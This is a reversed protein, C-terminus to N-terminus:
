RRQALLRNRLAPGIQFEDIAKKIATEEDPAEVRGLLAAPTGKIHYISWMYQKGSAASPASPKKASPRKM